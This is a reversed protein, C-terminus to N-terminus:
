EAARDLAALLEANSLKMLWQTRYRANQRYSSYPYTKGRPWCMTVIAGQLRGADEAYRLPRDFQDRAIARLHYKCCRKGCRPAPISIYRPHTM